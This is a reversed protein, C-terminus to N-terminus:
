VPWRVNEIWTGNREQGYKIEEYNEGGIDIQSNADDGSPSQETNHRVFLHKQGVLPDLVEMVEKTAHSGSLLLVLQHSLEPLIKAVRPQYEDDLQGFPADLFLPAVTGPLLFKHMANQRIKAYDILAATFILSILQNEGGSKPLMTEDNDFLTEISFDEKLQIKMSKHAIKSLYENVRTQIVSRASELEIKLDQELKELTANIIDRKRSLSSRIGLRREASEREKKKDNIRKVLDENAVVKRAREEIDKKISAALNREQVKLDTVEKDSINKFNRNITARQKELEAINLEAKTLRQVCESFGSVSTATGKRLAKMSSDVRLVRDVQDGDAAESLLSKVQLYADSKEDLERGCICVAADLLEKIHPEQYKAPIRSARKQQALLDGVKKVLKGSIIPNAQTDLWKWYGKKAEELSSKARNLLTVNTEFEKQLRSSNELNQLRVKTDLLLTESNENEDKKKAISQENSAIQAEWSVIEDSMEQIESSSTASNTLKEFERKIEKLDAIATDVISCGLISKVAEGVLKKNMEGSFNEAHEGDFFFYKAMAKPIVKEIFTKPQTVEEHNGNSIYWIQFRLSRKGPAENVEFFRRARYDKGQFTFNIEVWCERKGEKKAEAHLLNESQEFKGTTENYFTWLIANLLNTKGFGNQAHVVTVHGDGEEERWCFTINQEGYFCRWNKFTIATLQM